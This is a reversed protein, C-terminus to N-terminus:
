RRRNRIGCPPEIVKALRSGKIIKEYINPTFFAHKCSENVTNQLSNLIGPQDMRCLKQEVVGNCKRRDPKRTHEAVNRLKCIFRLDSKSEAANDCRRQTKEGM